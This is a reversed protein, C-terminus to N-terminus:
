QVRERQGSAGAPRGNRKSEGYETAGCRVLSQHIDSGVIRRYSADRSHWWYHGLFRAMRPLASWQFRMPISTNGLYDLLTSLDQPFRHPAGGERQILGANGFSTAEGAGQRDLLVVSQGRKALHLAVSVGVIGAGLVVVDTKM